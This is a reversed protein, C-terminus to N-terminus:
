KGFQAIFVREKATFRVRCPVGYYDMLMLELLRLSRRKLMRQVKRGGRASTELYIRNGEHADVLVSGDLSRYATEIVEDPKVLATSAALIENWALEDPVSSLPPKRVIVDCFILEKLKIIEMPTMETMIKEEKPQHNIAPIILGADIILNKCREDLISLLSRSPADQVPYYYYVVRRESDDEHNSCAM